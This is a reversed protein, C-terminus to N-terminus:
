KFGPLAMKTPLYFWLDVESDIMKMLWERLVPRGATITNHNEFTYPDQASFWGRDSTLMHYGQQLIQLVIPMMMMSIAENDDRQVKYVKRPKGTLLGDPNETLDTTTYSSSPFGLIRGLHQKNVEMILNLVKHSHLLESLGNVNDQIFGYFDTKILLFLPYNIKRITSAIKSAKPIINEQQLVKNAVLQPIEKAIKDFSTVPILIDKKVLKNRKRQFGSIADYSIPVEPAYKPQTSSSYCSNLLYDTSIKGNESYGDFKIFEENSGFHLMATRIDLLDNFRNTDDFLSALYTQYSCAPQTDVVLTKFGLSSSLAGFYGHSTYGIDAVYLLSHENYDRGVETNLLSSACWYPETVPSMKCFTTKKTYSGGPNQDEDSVQVTGEQGPSTLIALVLDIIADETTVLDNLSSEDNSFFPFSPTIPCNRDDKSGYKVHPSVFDARCSLPPNGSIKVQHNKVHSKLEELDASTLRDHIAISVDAGIGIENELVTQKSQDDDSRLNSIKLPTAGDQLIVNPKAYRSQIKSFYIWLIILFACTCCLFLFRHLFPISSVKFNGNRKLTKKM